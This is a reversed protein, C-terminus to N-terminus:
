QQSAAAVLNGTTIQRIQEKLIDIEKRQGEMIRQQEKVAEILVPIMETYSVSKEGAPSDKVIEPLVKEIEQGIM